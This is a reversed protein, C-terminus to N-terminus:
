KKGNIIYFIKKNKLHKYKRKSKRKSKRKGDKKYNIRIATGSLKEANKLEKNELKSELQNIEKLM